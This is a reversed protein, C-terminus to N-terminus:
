LASTNGFCETRLVSRDNQLVMPQQRRTFCNIFRRIQEGEHLPRTLDLQQDLTSSQRPLNNTIFLSLVGISVIRIRHTATRHFFNCVTSQCPSYSANYVSNWGSKSYSTQFDLHLSFDPTLQLPIGQHHHKLILLTLM